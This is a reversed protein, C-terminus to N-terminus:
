DASDRSDASVPLRQCYDSWLMRAIYALNYFDDFALTISDGQDYEGEDTCSVMRELFEAAEVDTVNLALEFRGSM